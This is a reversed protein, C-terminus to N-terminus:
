IRMRFDRCAKRSQDRKKDKHIKRPPRWKRLDGDESFFRDRDLGAQVRISQVQDRVLEKPRQHNLKQRSRRGM